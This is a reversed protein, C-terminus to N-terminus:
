EKKTIGEKISISEVLKDLKRKIKGKDLQDRLQSSKENYTVWRECEKDRSSALTM